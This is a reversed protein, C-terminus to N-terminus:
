DIVWIFELNSITLTPGGVLMAIIGGDGFGKESGNENFYLVGKNKEYNKEYIFDFDQTALNKKVEKSSSGIAFNQDLIFEDHRDLGFSDSDFQLVDNAVSFGTIKDVHKKKFKFPLAISHSRINEVQEVQASYNGDPLISPFSFKKKTLLKHLAKDRAKFKKPTNLEWEDFIATGRDPQDDCVQDLDMCTYNQGGLFSTLGWYIYETAICEWECDSDYRRYWAEQPYNGRANDDVGGRSLRVADSLLSTEKGEPLSYEAFGFASPYAFGYGQKTVMHLVEELTGDFEDSGQRFGSGEPRVENTYLRSYNFDYKETTRRYKPQIIAESQTTANIIMGGNRNLMANLVKPNDAFGDEDNDIYQFLVNAAHDIQSSPVSSDAFIKLGFVDRAQPLYKSLEKVFRPM